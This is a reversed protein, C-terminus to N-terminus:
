GINEQVVLPEFCLSPLLSRDVKEPLFWTVSIHMIRPMESKIRLFNCCHINENKKQKKKFITKLDLSIWKTPGRTEGYSLVIYAELIRM